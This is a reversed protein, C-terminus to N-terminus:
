NIYRVRSINQAGAVSELLTEVARRDVLVSVKVMERQVRVEFIDSIRHENGDSQLQLAALGGEILDKIDRPRVDPAAALWASVTAYMSDEQRISVAIDTVSKLLANVTADSALSDLIQAAKNLNRVVLWAPDGGVTEIIDPLPRASTSESSLMSELRGPHLSLLWEDETYAAYFTERGRADASFYSQGDPAVFQEIHESKALKALVDDASVPAHIVADATFEGPTRDSFSAGLYGSIDTDRLGLGIKELERELEQRKSEIWPEDNGFEEEISDLISLLAQSANVGALIDNGDIIMNVASRTSESVPSPGKESCAGALIGGLVLTVVLLLRRGIVNVLLRNPM